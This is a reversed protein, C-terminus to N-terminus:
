GNGGGTDAGDAARESTLSSLRAVARRLVKQEREAGSGAFEATERLVARVADRSERRGFGMGILAVTIDSELGPAASHSAPPLTLKGQLALVMKQATKNGLGPIQVLRVLDNGELAQVLESADIGSLIRIVLRPGVGDVRLLDLFLNREARTAFGYLRMQDDRHYLFSYMTVDEGTAPLAELSRSSTHLEWELGGTRVHAVEVGKHTLRGSVSNWM